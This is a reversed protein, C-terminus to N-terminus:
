RTRIGQGQGKGQPQGDTRESLVYLPRQRVEDFIRTIYAGQMGMLVFFLAFLLVVAWLGWLWGPLLGLASLAILAILALLALGGLLVGVYLPLMLPVDSFGLIGDAALRLMKKMTYHTQGAARSQREYEVPCQSFGAWASMGRLFRNHEPMALLVDAVKRDILRFDGTDLPIPYASMARLIRYYMSATWTKFGTEGARSVRKGYVVDYGEQWRAIMQPIVEPPDQLDVDIIILADGRADDMGATVATQHGFNRAFRLARVRPNQACIQQLLRWSSDKSGDDVYIMEYDGDLSAMVGAMREYSLPLVAEENYVPIILSVLTNEKLPETREQQGNRRRTYKCSINYEKQKPKAM